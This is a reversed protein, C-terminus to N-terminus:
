PREPTHAHTRLITTRTHSRSHTPHHHPHTLTLAYSRPTSWPVPHPTTSPPGPCEQWKQRWRRFSPQCYSCRIGGAGAGQGGVWQSDGIRIKEVLTGVPMCYEPRTHSVPVGWDPGRGRRPPWVACTSLVPFFVSREFSTRFSFLCRNSRRMRAPNGGGQPVGGASCVQWGARAQLTCGDVQLVGM